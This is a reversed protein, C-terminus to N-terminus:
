NLICADDIMIPSSFHGMCITSYNKIGFRVQGLAFNAAFVLVLVYRNQLFRNQGPDLKALYEWACPSVHTQTCCPSPAM